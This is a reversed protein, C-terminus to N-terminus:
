ETLIAMLPLQIVRAFVFGFRLMETLDHSFIFTHLFELEAGQLSDGQLIYHKAGGRVIGNIQGSAKGM